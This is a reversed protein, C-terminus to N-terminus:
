QKSKKLSYWFGFTFCLYTFINIILLFVNRFNVFDTNVAKFYSDFIFLPTACLYWLLLAISIYFSPMKKFNLLEESRMLEIFYLIVYLCIVVTGLVFAYPISRAFFADTLTFFMFVFVSFFIFVVRIINRFLKTSMLNSYFLGILGIALFSYINYLWRNNCFNSNKIAIFWNYDYNHQMVYTYLAVVEIIFTIWLYIVFIKIVSNKNKRIYLTGAFAAIFELVKTIYIGNDILFAKM